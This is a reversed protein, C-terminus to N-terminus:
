GLGILGRRGLERIFQTVAVEAERFQLQHTEAFIQILQRISRKGDILDWVSAGLKDLELKRPQVYDDPGGFRKVVTAFFPRITVPYRIIVEGSELREEVVQASIVPTCKLAETRSIQPKKRKKEFVRMIPVFGTWCNPTSRNRAKPVSASSATKKKWTGSDLGIIHLRTNLVDWGGNGIREPHLAGNLRLVDM